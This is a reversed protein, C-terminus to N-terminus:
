LQHPSAASSLRPSRMWEWRRVLDDLSPLNADKQSIIANPKDWPAKAYQWRFGTDSDKHYLSTCLYVISCTKTLCQFGHATGPPAYLSMGPKLIKYDTVGYTPSNGRLDHVVDILEGEICHIAKGQPNEGQVHMGRIV